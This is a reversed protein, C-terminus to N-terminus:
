KKLTSNKPQFLEHYDESNQIEAQSECKDRDDENNPGHQESESSYEVRQPKGCIM